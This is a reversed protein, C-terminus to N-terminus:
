VYLVESTLGLYYLTNMRVPNLVPVDSVFEVDVYNVIFCTWLKSAGNNHFDSWRNFEGISVCRLSKNRAVMNPSHLGILAEADAKRDRYTKSKLFTATCHAPSDHSVEYPNRRVTRLHITELTEPAPGALSYLPTITWDPDAAEGCLGLEWLKLDSRIRALNPASLYHEKADIVLRRLSDAHHFVSDFVNQLEETNEICELLLYLNRLGKFSQIFQVLGEPQTKYQIDFTKISLSDGRAALANLLQDTASCGRMALYTLAPVDIIQTLLPAMDTLPIDWLALDKLKMQRKRGPVLSGASAGEGEPRELLKRFIRKAIPLFTPSEETSGGDNFISAGDHHIMDEVLEDFNNLSFTLTTITQWNLDILRGFSMMSDYRAFNQWCINKLNAFRFTSESWQRDFTFNGDYLDLTQINPQYKMLKEMVRWSFSVDVDWIFHELAGRPVRELLIGLLLCTNLVSPSFVDNKIGARHTPEAEIPHGGDWHGGDWHGRVTIRRIHEIGSNHEYLFCSLMVPDLAHGRIPTTRIVVDSYLLPTAILRFAKCVTCLAALRSPVQPLGKIIQTLIEVPLDKIQVM